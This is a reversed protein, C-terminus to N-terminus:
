MGSHYARLPLRWQPPVGFVFFQVGRGLDVRLVNRADPYTFGYLERYRMASTELIMGLIRSAEAANLRTLPVPPSQLETTLSVDSRRLLPAAHLFLKGGRLRMRSRTSRSNALDWEIPLQMSDFMDARRRPWSPPRECQGM